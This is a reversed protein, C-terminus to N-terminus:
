LTTETEGVLMPQYNKGSAVWFPGTNGRATKTGGFAEFTLMLSGRKTRILRMGKILPPFALFIYAHATALFLIVRAYGM